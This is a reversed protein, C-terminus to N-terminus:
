VPPSDGPQEGAISVCSTAILYQALLYTSMIWFAANALAFSDSKFRTLAILSDSALFFLVGALLRWFLATPLVTSLNVCGIAMATIAGSYVIVPLRFAGPLGSWLFIDISVMYLLFPFLLYPFARLAGHRFSRLSLFAALYCLQALLFSGLGVLFFTAGSFLLFTDGAISLLLGALVFRSFRSASGRTQLFFYLSLTSLLLPKSWFALNPLSSQLAWLHAAALGLFVYLFIRGDRLM